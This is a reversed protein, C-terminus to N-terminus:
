MVGVVMLAWGILYVFGTTILVVAVLAVVAGFCGEEGGGGGGFCGTCGLLMAFYRGIGCVYSGATDCRHAYVRETEWKNMLVCVLITVGHGLVVQVAKVSTFGWM